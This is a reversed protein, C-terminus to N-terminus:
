GRRDTEGYTAFRALVEEMEAHGLLVPEGVALASLYQGALAEVEIALNLAQGLSKGVVLIGHNALLCARRDVLSALAADSLAQTGFTAYGTCRISDGGAAAVMYHFAPIDRRLCALATAHRPHAHLVVNVDARAALIDRHFLWESSPTGTGIVRGALTMAVIEEPELDDYAVGTPTILFRDDLRVSLNGSTGQNLGVQNMRRATDIIQQCLLRHQM